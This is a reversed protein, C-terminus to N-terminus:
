WAERGVPKGFDVAPHQNKKSIRSLLRRLFASM